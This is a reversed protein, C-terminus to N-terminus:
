VGSSVPMSPLTAVSGVDVVVGQSGGGSAYDADLEDEDEEEDKEIVEPESPETQKPAEKAVTSRRRPVGPKPKPLQAQEDEGEAPSSPGAGGSEEEPKKSRVAM